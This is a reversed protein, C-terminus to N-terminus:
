IRNSAGVDLNLRAPAMAAKEVILAVGTNACAAM